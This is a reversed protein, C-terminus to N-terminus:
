TVLKLLDITNKLAVTQCGVSIRGNSFKLVITGDYDVGPTDKIANTSIKKFEVKAM